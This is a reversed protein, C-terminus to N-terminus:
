KGIQIRDPKTSLGLPVSRSRIFKSYRSGVFNRSYDSRSRRCDENILAVRLNRKGLLNLLPQRKSGVPWPGVAARVETGIRSRDIVITSQASSICQSRTYWRLHDNSRHADVVANSEDEWYGCLPFLSFIYFLLPSRNILDLKPHM